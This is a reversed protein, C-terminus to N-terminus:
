IEWLYRCKHTEGDRYIPTNPDVEIIEVLNAGIRECTKRSAWNDPNCTIWLADFGHHKAVPRVVQCARAAYGQGRFRPFVGYGIHGAYLHVYTSNVLRLYIRGAIEKLGHPHIYFGYAPALGEAPDREVHAAVTLDVVEDTLTGFDHFVFM